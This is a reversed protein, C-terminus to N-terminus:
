HNHIRNILNELVYSEMRVYLRETRGQTLNYSFMLIISLVLSLLTTDFAVYLTTTVKEIGDTSVSGAYSLAGAIGLVTGVFGVSPIAWLIYRLLSQESEALSLDMRVRSSVVNMAEEVSNNSRFKTCAVLILKTIQYGAFQQNASLKLKLAAVQDPTLVYHDRTPLLNQDLGAEEHRNQRIFGMVELIGVSFLFFTFLQILGLPLDSGLLLAIRRGTSGEPSYAALLQVLILYCITCGVAIIVHLLQKNM